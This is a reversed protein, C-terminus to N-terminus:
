CSATMCMAFCFHPLPHIFFDEEQQVITHRSDEKAIKTASEVFIGTLINM